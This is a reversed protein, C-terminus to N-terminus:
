PLLQVNVITHRPLNTEDESLVILCNSNAFSKMMHSGQGGTTRVYYRGNNNSLYGRLFHIKGAKKNIPELLEAQTEELQLHKGGAMKRIAPRVYEYYCVLASAPNGPLGFVLKKEKKGFCMPGGPRQAVGWFIQEVGQSSLADKIFDYEGVSVGGTTILIDSSNLESAIINEIDARNDAVRETSVSDINDKCMASKITISNTDRIKGPSLEDNIGVLEEGSVVLSIKPPRYVDVINIGLESIFGLTAPNIEVGSELATEGKKIEEGEFRVNASIEVKKSVLIAEENEEVDEIKVVSDAGNPVAAGTMIKAAEGSNVSFGPFDGARITGVINLSVPNKSSASDTDASKVAYGDMASNDFLPLNLPSIINKSLVLGLSDEVRVSTSELTTTNELILDLAEYVSVM